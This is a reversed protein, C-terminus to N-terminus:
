EKKTVPVSIHSGIVAHCDRIATELRIITRELRAMEEMVQEVTAPDGALLDERIKSLQSLTLFKTGM